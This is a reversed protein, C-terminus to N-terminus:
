GHVRTHSRPSVKPSGPHFEKFEVRIGILGEGESSQAYERCACLIDLAREVREIRRDLVQVRARCISLYKRIETSEASINEHLVPPPPPQEQLPDYGCNSCVM